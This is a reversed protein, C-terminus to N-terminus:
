SEKILELVKACKERFLEDYEIVDNTRGTQTHRQDDALWAELKPAAKRAAQGLWGLAEVAGIGCKSPKAEELLTPL